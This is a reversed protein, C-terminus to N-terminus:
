GGEVDVKRWFVYCEKVQNKESLDQSLGIIKSPKGNLEKEVVRGKTAVWIWDGQQSKWRYESDLEKRGEVVESYM